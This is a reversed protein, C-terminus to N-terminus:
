PMQYGIFILPNRFRCIKTSFKQCLRGTFIGRPCFVHHGTSSQCLFHLKTTLKFSQVRIHVSCTKRKKCPGNNVQNKRGHGSCRPQRPLAIGEHCVLPLPHPLNHTGVCGTKRHLTSHFGDVARGIAHLPGEGGKLRDAVGAHLHAEHVGRGGCPPHYGGNRVVAVPPAAAFLGLAGAGVPSPPREGVAACGKGASDIAFAGIKGHGRPAIDRAMFIFVEGAADHRLFLSGRVAQEPRLLLLGLAIGATVMELFAPLAPDGQRGTGFPRERHIDMDNGHFRLVAGDASKEVTGPLEGSLGPHLCRVFLGDPVQADTVKLFRQPGLLATVATEADPQREVPFAAPCLAAKCFVFGSPAPLVDAHGAGHKPIIQLAAVARRELFAQGGQVAPGVM